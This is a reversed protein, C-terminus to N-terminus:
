IQGIHVENYQAYMWDQLYFLVDYYWDFYICEYCLAMPFLLMCVICSLILLM